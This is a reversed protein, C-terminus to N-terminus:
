PDQKEHEAGYTAMALSRLRAKTSHQQAEELVRLNGESRHQGERKM